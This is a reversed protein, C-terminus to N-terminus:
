EKPENKSGRIPDSGSGAVNGGTSGTEIFNGGVSEMTFPSAAPADLILLEDTSFYRPLLFARVPILLLIFVPFGIAAITQTIAFTAGFGILELAVFYWTAEKRRLQSLPESDWTLHRDRCLYHIKRTIGNCEVAQVGMIFFLGALVAQPILQLVFLFPGSMTVLTLLGQCLNSLRQEVVHDIERTPQGKRSGSDGKAPVHRTVCLASTHFPAQPILGNPAPLGLLGAIGTTFGLLFIDWHFGAPKRLPFETGQAM